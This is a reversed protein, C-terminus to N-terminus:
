LEKRASGLTGMWLVVFIAVGVGSIIGGVLRDPTKAFYVRVDSVGGGVPVVMLGTVDSSQTAVRRGNVLVNWAPYNFLRLTLNQAASEQVTFHKETANWTLIQVEPAAGGAASVEPLEKNLEYPDDGAPVYEDTGEYGTADTVADDMEQIDASQDWWPPQIRRGSVLLAALLSACVIVRLGWKWAASSSRMTAIALLMALPVNLCLLWRFPLQVFRFKPLYLWLLSSVPLMVLAIATGWSALLIWAGRDFSNGPGEDRFVGRSFWVAFTLFVIEALAVLSVLLNFRNHDADALYTFLFNDEPRVGASLVAAINVWPEEYVAPVLYLSALGAGLLIAVGARILFRVADRPSRERVAILVALGAASYHIMMASPANAMWAGALTLSLWLVPRMGVERLRLLCLLVLPVVVAALLEAYASRWYVILLHYPNFAYFAAAFFADPPPLWRRALAYMSVAALTLVLWCYVGPVIKWPLMAGLAAGLTWSGPPYFLFRAEGYGWHALGAWRPYVIGQKWQSLVEMWSYMHFEFDHGSPSGWRLFPTIALWCLVALLLLRTIPRTLL